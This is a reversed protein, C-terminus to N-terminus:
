CEVFVLCFLFGSSDDQGTSRPGERVKIYVNLLALNKRAYNFIDDEILKILEDDDDDFGWRRPSWKLGGCFEHKTNGNERGMSSMRQMASEINLCVRPFKEKFFISQYAFM